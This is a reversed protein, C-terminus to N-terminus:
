ALEERIKILLKKERRSIQVQSCGCLRAVESQTKNAYYRLELLEKDKKPLNNIIQRLSLKDTIEEEKSQVPLQMQQEGEQTILTLSVTANSACMAQSILEEDEGLIEAIQTVTPINMYEASYKAIVSNIKFSLEKIKRSVKVAGDNRFYSKLEGLIVPVAYTSFKYGLEENFNTSAKILGISAIQILDDYDVGRGIFRRACLHALGMNNTVIDNKQCSVKDCM